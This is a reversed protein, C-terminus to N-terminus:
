PRQRARHTAAKIRNQCTLSCFRRTGNRSVDVFVRDCAQAACVGLRDGYESGLVTALAVAVAGGWGSPDSGHPGHFHLHWPEDDHRELTPTPLYRALLRNVARAAADAEGREMHVFVPRAATAIEVYPRVRNAVPPTAARTGLALAEGVADALEGPSPLSYPRGQREGPTAVNVLAASVAVIGDVHSGFNVQGTVGEQM